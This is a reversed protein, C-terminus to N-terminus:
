AKEHHMAKGQRFCTQFDLRAVDVFRDLSFPWIKFVRYDSCIDEISYWLGMSIEILNISYANSLASSVSSASSYVSLLWSMVDRSKKLEVKKRIKVIAVSILFGIIGGISVTGLFCLIM